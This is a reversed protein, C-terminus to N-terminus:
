FSIQKKMADLKSLAIPDSDLDVFKKSCNYVRIADNKCGLSIETDVQNAYGNLISYKVELLKGLLSKSPASKNKVLKETKFYKLVAVDLCGLSIETDIESAIDDITRAKKRAPSGFGAGQYYRGFPNTDQPGGSNAVGESPFHFRSLDYKQRKTSNSLVEYAEAIEKFKKESEKSGQNRDPHYQMALKRYVKKIDDQSAKKNVGLIEYYDRKNVM